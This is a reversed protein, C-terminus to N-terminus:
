DATQLDSRRCFSIPPSVVSKFVRRLHEFAGPALYSDVENAQVCLYTILGVEALIILGCLVGVVYTFPRSIMRHSLRLIFNLYVTQAIASTLGCAIPAAKLYFPMRLIDKTEGFHRVFLLGNSISAAIANWSLLLAMLGLAAYIWPQEPWRSNARSTANKHASNANTGSNNSTLYSSNTPRPSTLFAFLMALYWTTLILSLIQVIFLPATLPMFSHPTAQQSM